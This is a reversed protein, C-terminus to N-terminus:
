LFRMVPNRAWKEGFKTTTVWGQYTTRKGQYKLEISVESEAKKKSSETFLERIDFVGDKVWDPIVTQGHELTSGDVKEFHFNSMKVNMLWVILLALQNRFMSGDIISKKM